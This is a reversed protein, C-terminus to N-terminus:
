GKMTSPVQWATVLYDRVLTHFRGRSFNIDPQEHDKYESIYNMFESLLAKGVPSYFRAFFRRTGFTM